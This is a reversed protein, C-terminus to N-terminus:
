SRRITKRGDTATWRDIVLQDGEVHVTAVSDLEVRFLYGDDPAEDIGREAFYATLKLSAYDPPTDTM